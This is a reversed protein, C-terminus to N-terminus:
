KYRKDKSILGYEYLGDSLSKLTKPGVNEISEFMIYGNENIEDVVEQVTWEHDNNLLDLYKSPINLYRLSGPLLINNDDKVLKNFTEYGTYIIDLCETSCIYKLIRKCIKTSSSRYVGTAERIDDGTKLEKFRMFFIKRGKNSFRKTIEDIAKLQDDNMDKFRDVDIDLNHRYDDFLDIYNEAINLPYGYKVLDNHVM